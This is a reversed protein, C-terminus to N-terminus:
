MKVCFTNTTRTCPCIINATANVQQLRCGLHLARPVAGRVESQRQKEGFVCSQQVQHRSAASVFRLNTFGFHITKAVALSPLSTGEPPLSCKAPECNEQQKQVHQLCLSSQVSEAIICHINKSLFIFCGPIFLRPRVSNYLQRLIKANLFNQMVVGNNLLLRVFQVRDETLAQTM